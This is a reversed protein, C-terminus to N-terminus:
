SVQLGAQRDQIYSEGTSDTALTLRAQIKCFYLMKDMGSTFHFPLQPQDVGARELEEQVDSTVVKLRRDIEVSKRLNADLARIYPCGDDFRHAVGGTLTAYSM